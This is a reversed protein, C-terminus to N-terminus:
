RHRGSGRKEKRRISEKALNGMEAAAPIEGMVIAGLYREVDEETRITDDMVRIVALVGVALIFGVAAAILTVGLVNPGSPKQPVEAEYVLNVSDADMIQQIQTGAVERVRNAIQAARDPNTDTVTIQLVRTNEPATVIIMDELEQPSFELGLDRIVEKTVNQGTILVKYDAIIQNSVQYDSYSVENESSRNLVYMRTSAEYTPLILFRSVAFGIAACIVMVASIIWLMKILFWCLDRLDVEIEFQNEM